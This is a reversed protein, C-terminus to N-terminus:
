ISFVTHIGALGSGFAFGKIGEELDAILEELAFRTPNGSRSYEYEPEGGLEKQAYTSVQYIPVSLAGTYNDRSIGGHILKTKMKM